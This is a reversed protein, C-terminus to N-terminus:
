RPHEVARRRWADPDDVLEAVPAPLHGAVLDALSVHELV